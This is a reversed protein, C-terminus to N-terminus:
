YVCDDFLVYLIVVLDSTTGNWSGDTTFKVGLADGAAFKRKGAEMRVFGGAQTTIAVQQTADGSATTNITADLTLSGAGAAASLRAGMGVISGGWPMHAGIVANYGTTAQTEIVYCAVGNQSAALQKKSFLFPVLPHQVGIKETLVGPM